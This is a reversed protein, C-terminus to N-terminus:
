PRHVGALEERHDGYEASSESDCVDRDDELVSKHGGGTILKADEMLQEVRGKTEISKDLVPDLECLILPQPAEQWTARQELIGQFIAV